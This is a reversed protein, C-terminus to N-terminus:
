EGNQSSSVREDGLRRLLAATDTDAPFFTELALESLTIDLPPSGNVCM